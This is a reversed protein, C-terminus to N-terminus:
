SMFMRSRQAEDQMQAVELGPATSGVDLLGLGNIVGLCEDIVPYAGVLVRQGADQGIPIGRIANQTLSAALQMLYSRTALDTPMGAAALALGHGLAPCGHLKGSQVQEVYWTVLPHDPVAIAIIKCMRKGMSRNAERVQRSVLTAHALSDLDALTERAEEAPLSVADASLKAILADNYCAQRLYAYLWQSYSDASDVLDRNLYTEMGFSHAFGGTPLASDTLHLMTLLAANGGSLEVTDTPTNQM